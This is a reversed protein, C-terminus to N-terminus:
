NQKIRKKNTSQIVKASAWTITVNVCSALPKKTAQTNAMHDTYFDPFNISYGLSLM